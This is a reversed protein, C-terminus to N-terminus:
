RFKTQNTSGSPYCNVKYGMFKQGNPAQQCDESGTNNSFPGAIKNNCGTDSYLTVSCAGSAQVIASSYEPSDSYDWKKCDVNFPPSQADSYGMQQPGDACPSNLFFTANWYKGQEPYSRRDLQQDALGSVSYALVAMTALLSSSFQM